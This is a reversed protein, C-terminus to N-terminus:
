QIVPSAKRAVSREDADCPADKNVFDIVKFNLM